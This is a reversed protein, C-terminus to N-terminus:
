TVSIFGSLTSAPAGIPAPRPGGIDRIQLQGLYNCRDGSPVAEVGIWLRSCGDLRSAATGSATGLRSVSDAYCAAEFAACRETLMLPESM